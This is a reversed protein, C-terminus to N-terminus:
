TISLSLSLSYHNYQSVFRPELFFFFIYIYIYIHMLKRELHKAESKERLHFIEKKQLALHYPCNLIVIFGDGDRSKLAKKCNIHPSPLFGNNICFLIYNRSKRKIEHLTTLRRLSAKNILRLKCGFCLDARRSKKKEGREIEQIM